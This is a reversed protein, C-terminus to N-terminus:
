PNAIEVSVVKTVNGSSSTSSIFPFGITGNSVSFAFITSINIGSIVSGTTNDHSSSM